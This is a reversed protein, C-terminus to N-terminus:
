DEGLYTCTSETKGKMSWVFLRPVLIIRCGARESRRWCDWLMLYVSIMFVQCVQTSACYVVNAFLWLLSTRGDPNGPRDSVSVHSKSYETTISPWPGWDIFKSCPPVRKSSAPRHSLGPQACECITFLCFVLALLLVDIVLTHTHTHMHTHTHGSMHAPVQTHTPTHMCM